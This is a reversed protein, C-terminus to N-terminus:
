IRQNFRRLPDHLNTIRFTFDFLDRLGGNSAHDARHARLCYRRMHHDVRRQVHERRPHRRALRM